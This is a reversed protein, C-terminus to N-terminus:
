YRENWGEATDTTLRMARVAQRSESKRRRKVFVFFIEDRWQTLVHVRLQGKLTGSSPGSIKEKLLLTRVITNKVQMAVILSQSTDGVASAKEQNAM